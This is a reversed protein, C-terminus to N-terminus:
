LYLRSSLDKMEAEIEVLVYDPFKYGIGCLVLMAEYFDVVNSFTFTEGDLPGGIPVREAESMWKSRKKEIAVWKKIGSKGGKKVLNWDNKPANGVIKHSAIHVMYGADSLYAYVDCKFNDSSWRCYSM